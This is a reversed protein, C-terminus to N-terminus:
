LDSERYDSEDWDTDPNFLPIGNENCHKITWIMNRRKLRHDLYYQDVDYNHAGCGTILYYFNDESNYKIKDGIQRM